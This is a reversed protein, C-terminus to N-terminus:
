SIERTERLTDCVDRWSRVSIATEECWPYTPDGIFNAAAIEEDMCDRCVAMSDDVMLGINLMKCVDSKPVENRTFSNTMIVDSFIGPFNEQIWKQTKDRVVEQRGTVIYLKSSKKLETMADIANKIPKMKAFDESEYFDRVMKTSERESINYIERYVYRHKPPVYVQPPKWRKMTPLFPALVEDIDIAIRAARM